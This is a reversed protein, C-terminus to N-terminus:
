LQMYCRCRPLHRKNYNTTTNNHNNNNNNNNNTNNHQQQQQQHPPPPQVWAYELKAVADQEQPCEEDTRYYFSDRPNATDALDSIIQNTVDSGHLTNLKNRTKNADDNEDVTFINDLNSYQPTNEVRVKYWCEGNSGEGTDDHGPTLLSSDSTKVLKVDSNQGLSQGGKIIDLNDGVYWGAFDDEGGPISYGSPIRNLDMSVQPKDQVTNMFRTARYSNKQLLIRQGNAINNHNDNYQNNEYCPYHWKRGNAGTLTNDKKYVKFKGYLNNDDIISTDNSGIRGNGDVNYSNSDSTITDTSNVWEYIIGKNTCNDNPNFGNGGGM